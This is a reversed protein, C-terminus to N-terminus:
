QGAKAVPICILLAFKGDQVSTELTGGNRSAIERMSPLGLGHASPDEKTTSLGPLVERDLANEVRLMFLGKQVKCRVIVTKDGAQAAAEMANDLANGLMACLDTDFLPLPEPLTVAFDPILGAQRMAESKSVLVANAVENACIRQAGQLAPSESLADLYYLAGDTDGQELRARIVTMHNRLDHRLTRVQQAQRQLGQYYVERVSALRSAQELKEHDALVLVARLLLVSTLLVFPLVVMGLNMAQAYAAPSDYKTYTLLVVAALACFPMAALGLMLRWLGASLVVPAAPLQPRLALYLGGFVVPRLLRTLVDYGQVYQLYTDLMACVSMVLCFFILCMTLRGIRDGRTCLFFAALFFPLTYLLNPDGVWIVMGSSGVFLLYLLAGMGKGRISLFPCALRYILRGNFLILAVWAGNSVLQTIWELFREGM